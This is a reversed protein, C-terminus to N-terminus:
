RKREEKQAKLLELVIRNMEASVKREREIAKLGARYDGNEMMSMVIQLENVARIILPRIRDSM